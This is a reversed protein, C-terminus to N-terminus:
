FSKRKYRKTRPRRISGKSYSSYRSSSPKRRRGSRSKVRRRRRRRRYYYDDDDLSASKAGGLKPILLKLMPAMQQFTQMTKQVKTLTSMMGEVGGMRDVFGKIDKFSFNSFPNSSAPPTTAPLYPNQMEPYYPTVQGQGVGPIDSGGQGYYQSPVNQSIRVPQYSNM